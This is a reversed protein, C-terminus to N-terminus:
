LLYWFYMGYCILMLVGMRRTLRGGRFVGLLLLGGVAAAIWTDFLFNAAFPIPLICGTVGLIFLINFLNSGVINGIAIEANGKKAAILSTVLEPLSTGFAVITLGIFRESVGLMSAIGTAGEVTLSSGLVVLVIGTVMGLVVKWMPKKETAAAREKQAQAMRFLYWLYGGFLILLVFSERRSIQQGTRGFFALVITILIMYPIEYKRTSKEVTLPTLLATLGLIILVNLINSGVVNGVAIEANGQLASSISVAAEPTSTGMAVITLGIVLQPIGLRRALGSAGDVFLDAGKILLVVGLLLWVVQLFGEMDMREAVFLSVKAADFYECCFDRRKTVYRIFREDDQRYTFM